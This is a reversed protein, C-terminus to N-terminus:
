KQNKNWLINYGKEFANISAVIVDPSTANVVVKNQNKDEMKVIVKVTADVGGTDIEVNYDKLRVELEDGDNVAKRLATILADVTGVGASEAEKEEGNMKIKIKGQAAGYMSSSVDFDLIELVKEKISM